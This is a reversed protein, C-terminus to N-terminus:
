IRNLMLTKCRTLAKAIYRGAMRESVGLRRGIEAQTLGELRHWALARREREPLRVMIEDLERVCGARHGSHEPCAHPCALMPDDPNLSCWEPASNQRRWHDILRHKAMRFLYARPDRLGADPPAERLRLYLDQCLDEAHGADDLRRAMYQRLAGAHRRYLAELQHDSLPAAPRTPSAPPSPRTTSNPASVAIWGRPRAAPLRTVPLPHPSAAASM